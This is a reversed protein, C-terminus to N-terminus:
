NVPKTALGPAGGESDAGVWVTGRIRREPAPRTTRVSADVPAYEALGGDLHDWAVWLHGCASCFAAATSASLLSAVEVDDPIDAQSVLLWQDSSAEDAKWLIQAGCSCTSRAM